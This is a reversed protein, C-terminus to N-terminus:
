SGHGGNRGGCAADAVDVEAIYAALHRFIVLGEDVVAVDVHGLDNAYQAVFVVLAHHDGVVRGFHGAVRRPMRALGEREAVHAGQHLIGVRQSRRDAPRLPRPRTVDGARTAEGTRRPVKAMTSLIIEHGLGRAEVGVIGLQEPKELRLKEDRHHAVHHIREAQLM